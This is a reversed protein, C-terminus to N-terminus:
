CRNKFEHFNGANLAQRAARYGSRLAGHVTGWHGSIDTHEGAYFLTGEVPVALEESAHIGGQLVYTYAGRSHPDAEWDHFNARLLLGRLEPIETGLLKALTSLGLEPLGLPDLSTAKRGATWATINATLTPNTTWWVPPTSDPAMIFSVGELMSFPSRFEYVVRAAPGMALRSVAALIQPPDPTFAVSKAQLVGLPLTVIVTAAAFVGQNATTVEARGPVWDVSRVRTSLFLEGGADLLRRMLFEPVRAYGDVVRFLRHGSIQDEAAQQRILSQLSIRDADAANFGEVYNRAWSAAEPGLGRQALFQNFSVDPEPPALSGLHDFLQDVERQEGCPILRGPPQRFCRSDGELEFRALRAEEVLQILESPLGHIFEAGLEIPLGGQTAPITHIRGGVRDRSELVAVTKGAEVLTRAAALGAIGGGIVIVDSRRITM